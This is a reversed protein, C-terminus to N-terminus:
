YSVTMDDTLYHLRNGKHEESIANVNASRLLRCYVEAGRVSMTLVSKGFLDSVYQVSCALYHVQLGDPTPLSQAARSSIPM